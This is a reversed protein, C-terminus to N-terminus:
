VSQISFLGNFTAGFVVVVSHRNAYFEGVAATTIAAARGDREYRRSEIVGL